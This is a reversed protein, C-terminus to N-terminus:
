FIAMRLASYDIRLFRGQFAGDNAGEVLAYRRFGGVLWYAARAYARSVAADNVGFFGIVNFGNASYVNACRFAVQIVRHGNAFQEVVTAQFLLVCLHRIVLPSHRISRASEYPAQRRNGAAWPALARGGSGPFCSGVVFLPEDATRGRGGPVRAGTYSSKADVHAFPFSM